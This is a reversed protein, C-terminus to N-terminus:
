KNKILCVLLHCQSFVLVVLFCFFVILKTEDNMTHTQSEDSVEEDREVRLDPLDPRYDDSFYARVCEFHSYKNPKQIGTLNRSVNALRLYKSIPNNAMELRHICLSNFVSLNIQKIRNDQLFIDEINLLSTFTTDALRVLRNARLSVALLKSM